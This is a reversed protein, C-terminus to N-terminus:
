LKPNSSGLYWTCVNREMVFQAKLFREKIAVAYMGAIHYSSTM